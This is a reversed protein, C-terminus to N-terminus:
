KLIYLVCELRSISPQWSIFSLPLSGTFGDVMPGDYVIAGEITELGTFPTQTPLYPLVGSQVTSLTSVPVSTPPYEQASALAIGGVAVLLTKAFM